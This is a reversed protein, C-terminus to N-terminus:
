RGFVFALRDLICNQVPFEGVWLQDLKVSHACMVFREVNHSFEHFVAAQELVKLLPSPFEASVHEQAHALIHAFPHFVQFSIAKNM